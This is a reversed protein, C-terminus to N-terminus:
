AQFIWKYSWFHITKDYGAGILYDDYFTMNNIIEGNYEIKKIIEGDVNIINIGNEDTFAGFKDNLAVSYVLFGADFFKSFTGNEYYCSKDNSGAIARDGYFAVSFINDKHISKERLFKKNVADFFYIVGGENSLMITNKERDFFVGGFPSDSIKHEFTVKQSNIDYYIIESGIGLLLLTNEDFFILKKIGTIPPTFTKLEGNELIGLGKSMYDGNILLAFKDGLKDLDIIKSDIDGDVYSKIKPLEFIQTANEDGHTYRFLKGADTGAFIEGDIQKLIAINGVVEIKHDAFLMGVLIMFVAFFKKM